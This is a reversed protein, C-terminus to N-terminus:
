LFFSEPIVSYQILHEQSKLTFGLSTTVPITKKVNKMFVNYDAVICGVIFGRYLKAQKTVELVAHAEM